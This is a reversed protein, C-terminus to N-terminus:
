LTTGAIAPCWRGGYPTARRRRAVRAEKKKRPSVGNMTELESHLRNTSYHVVTGFSHIQRFEPWPAAAIGQAGALGEESRIRGTSNFDLPQSRFM